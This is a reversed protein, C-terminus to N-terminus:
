ISKKHTHFISKTKLIAKIMRVMDPSIQTHTASHRNSSQLSAIIKPKCVSTSYFLFFFSLILIKWNTFLAYAHVNFLLLPM